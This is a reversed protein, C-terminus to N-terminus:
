RPPTILTAQGAIACVVSPRLQVFHDAAAKLAKSDCALILPKLGLSPALRISEAAMLSLRDGGPVYIAWYTGSTKWFAIPMEPLDRWAAQRRTIERGPLAESLVTLQAQLM